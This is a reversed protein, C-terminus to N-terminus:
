YLGPFCPMTGSAKDRMWEKDTSGPNKALTEVAWNLWESLSITSKTYFALDLLSSNWM